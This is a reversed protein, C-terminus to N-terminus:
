ATTNVNGRRDSGGVPWQTGVLTEIEVADLELFPQLGTGVDDLGCVVGGVIAHKADLEVCRM